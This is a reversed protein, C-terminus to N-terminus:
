QKAPLVTLESRTERTRDQVRADMPRSLVPVVPASISDSGITRPGADPLTRPDAEPGHRPVLAFFAVWRGAARIATGALFGCAAGLLGWRPVLCWVLAVTLIGGFAGIWFSERAREVSALANFAPMGVGGALVALVLVTVTHGNGEYEKGHYLLRMVHEGAFLVVISTHHNPRAEIIRAVAQFVRGQAQDFDNAAAFGEGYPGAFLVVICFLAMVLGLLRSERTIERRLRAGGGEKFALAARPALINSLGMILPNALSAISMCAAYVGTASTGAAWALLWYTVNTQAVLILQNALLWKGLNWSQQMAEPLQDGRVAFNARARYLWVVGIGASAAGIAAFATTASLLGIWALVGLGGLQIAAVATDLILAQNMQFHAFAFRRGFARLLAFPAVAALAWIMAVLKAEANWSSLGLATLALVVICLASLLFSLKLSSDSHEASKGLRRHRQFTYPLSILSDQITVSTVLLSSAISYLGLESASTSRGVVVMTLFSTGSVVAQDALALAHTQWTTWSTRLIGLWTGGGYFFQRYGRLQSVATMKRMLDPGYVRETRREGFLHALWVLPMGDPTVMGAQNHINRL